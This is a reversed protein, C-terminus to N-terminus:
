IPKGERVTKSSQRIQFFACDKTGRSRRGFHKQEESLFDQNELHEYLKNTIIGTLLKQLLNLCAISRYKSFANGKIPDKQIFVSHSKAMWEPIFTSQVENNLIDAITQHLSSITKVLIRPHLKVRTVKSLAIQKIVDEKTIVINNQIKVVEM